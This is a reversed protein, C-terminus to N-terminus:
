DDEDTLLLGTSADINMDWDKGDADTVEVDYVYTGHQNEIEGQKIRGGPHKEMAAKQLIELPLVKGSKILPELESASLHGASAAGATLLAAAAIGSVIWTKM